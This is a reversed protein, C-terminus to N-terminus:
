ISDLGWVFVDLPLGGFSTQLRRELEELPERRGAAPLLIELLEGGTLEATRGRTKLLCGGRDDLEWGLSSAAAEVLLTAAREVDLLKGMGLIGVASPIGLDRLHDSVENAGHPSMLFVGSGDPLEGDRELSAHICALVADPEGAWEHIVHALDQGRGRCTYAQAKGGCSHVLVEMGPTGLLAATEDMSRLVRQSHHTYLAHMGEYDAPEAERVDESSPLKAAIEDTLLFDREAGVPRYGRRQYYEPSDAWLLSITCGRGLLFEEARALVASALGRGRREVATAVSGILGVRLPAGRVSLNRVLVACSSWVAGNEEAVVARGSCNSGFVLPFEPALTAGERLVREM